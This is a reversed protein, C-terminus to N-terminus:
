RRPVVSGLVAWQYIKVMTTAEYSLASGVGVCTHVSDM